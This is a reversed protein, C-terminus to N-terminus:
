EVVAPRRRQRRRLQPQQREQRGMEREALDGLPEVDGAGRDLAWGDRDGPLETGGAAALRDLPCHMQPKDVHGDGRPRTEGGPPSASRRAVSDLPALGETSPCFPPT